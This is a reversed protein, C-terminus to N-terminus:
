SCSVLHLVALAVARLRICTALIKLPAARVDRSKASPNHARAPLLRIPTRTLPAARLGLLHSQSRPHECDCLSALRRNRPTSRVIKRSRPNISQSGSLVKQFGVLIKCVLLLDRSECYNPSPKSGGVVYSTQTYSFAERGACSCVLVSKYSLIKCCLERARVVSPM